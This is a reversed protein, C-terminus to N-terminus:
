KKNRKQEKPKREYSHTKLPVVVSAKIREIFEPDKQIGNVRIGACTLGIILDNYYIIENM